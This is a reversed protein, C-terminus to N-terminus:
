LVNAIIFIFPSLLCLNFVDAINYIFPILVGFISIEFNFLFRYGFVKLTM